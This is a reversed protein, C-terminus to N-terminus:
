VDRAGGEIVRLKPAEGFVRGAVASAVSALGSAMTHSYITDVVLSKAHGLM